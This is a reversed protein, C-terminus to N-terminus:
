TPCVTVPRYKNHTVCALFGETLCIYDLTDEDIYNNGSAFFHSDLCFPNKAWPHFVGNHLRYFDRDQLNLARRVSVLRQLVKRVKTREAGFIGISKIGLRRM